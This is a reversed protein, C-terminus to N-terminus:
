SPVFEKSVAEAKVFGNEYKRAPFPAQSRTGLLGKSVRKDNENSEFFVITASNVPIDCANWPNTDGRFHPPSPQRVFACSITPRFM